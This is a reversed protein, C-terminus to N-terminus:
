VQSAGACTYGGTISFSVDVGTLAPVALLGTSASGDGTTGVTYLQISAGVVPQQGGHVKGSLVASPHVTAIAGCGTLFGLGVLVCPLAALCSFRM